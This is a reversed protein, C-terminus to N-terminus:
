FASSVLSLLSFMIAYIFYTAYMVAWASTNEFFRSPKQNNVLLTFIYFGPIALFTLAWYEEQLVGADIAAPILLFPFFLFPFSFVAAKKVGFTNVLTHTGTKKDAYSDTIDKTISGGFLFLAAIGAIILAVPQFVSGFVSWSALIGLLGRPIAIWLQNFFLKDKMRPFLSYTVTFLTIALILIFFNLHVFSALGIAVAYLGLAVTKGQNVSLIGQPIPRYPKCLSDTRYDTAQNLANSAGNLIALSLSGPLILSFFVNYIQQSSQQYYFSAIMISISVILPAVLTFPRILSFFAHFQDIIQKSTKM